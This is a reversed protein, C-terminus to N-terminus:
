YPYTNSEVFQQGIVQSWVVYDDIHVSGSSTRAALYCPRNTAGTADRSIDVDYYGDELLNISFSCHLNYSRSVGDGAVVFRM